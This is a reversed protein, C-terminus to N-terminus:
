KSLFGSIYDCLEITQKADFIMLSPTNNLHSNYSNLWLFCSSQSQLLAKLKLHLLVILYENQIPILLIQDQTLNLYKCSKIFLKEIERFKLM